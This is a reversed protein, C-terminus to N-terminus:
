TPDAISIFVAAVRFLRRSLPRSPVRSMEPNIANDRFLKAKPQLRKSSPLARALTTVLLPSFSNPPARSARSPTKEHIIPCHLPYQAVDSPRTPQLWTVSVLQASAKHRAYQSSTSPSLLPVLHKTFTLASTM